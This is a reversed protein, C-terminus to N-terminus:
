KLAYQIHSQILAANPVAHFHTMVKVNKDFYSKDTELIALVPGGSSLAM